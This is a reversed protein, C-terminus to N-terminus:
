GSHQGRGERWASIQLATAADEAKGPSYGACSSSARLLTVPSITVNEACTIVGKKTLQCEAGKM